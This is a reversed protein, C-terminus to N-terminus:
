YWTAGLRMSSATVTGGEVLALNFGAEISLTFPGVQAADYGAATKVAIGSSRRGTAEGTNPDVGRLLVAGGLGGHLWFVERVYYQGALSIQNLQEFTTQEGNATRQPEASLDLQLVWMLSDTARTGVRVFVSGGLGSVEDVGLGWLATPGVGLGILFGSRQRGPAAADAVAAAETDARATAEPDAVAAADSEVAAPEATAVGPAAIGVGGTLLASAVAVVALAPRGLRMM